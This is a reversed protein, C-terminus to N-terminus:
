WTPKHIAPSVAKKKAQKSFRAPWRKQLAALSESGGNVSGEKASLAQSHSLHLLAERFCFSTRVCRLFAEDITRYSKPSAPNNNWSWSVIRNRFWKARDFISSSSERSIATRFQRFKPSNASNASFHNKWFTTDFKLRQIVLFMLGKFFRAKFFLYPRLDTLQWTNSLYWKTNTQVPTLYISGFSACFWFLREHLYWLSGVLDRAFVWKFWKLLWHCRWNRFLYSRVLDM